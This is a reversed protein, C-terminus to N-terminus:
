VRVSVMVSRFPIEPDIQWARTQTIASLKVVFWPEFAFLDAPPLTIVHLVLHM